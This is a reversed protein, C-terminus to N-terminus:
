FGVRVGLSLGWPQEYTRGKIYDVDAYLHTASSVQAALGAGIEGRSGSLGNDFRNDNVSVRNRKAFERAVAVKIFPEVTGGDDLTFTRGVTTGVKGLLSDAGNSQARMGNNLDYHQGEVWLASGQIFPTVSLGEGLDIRRGGELTAGLGHNNYDGKAQTGDSMRVTSKNQFRNAKFLADAYYGDDGLWTGYVGAYFSDVSGTTGAQVDLDSKSYGAMVGFLGNGNALTLPADAGFTIGRQQQSYGVGAASSVDQRSGYARSWVGGTAQGLRLEGMRSRLTATEGYWVTPAASFLALVSRTGPTVVEGPRQVLFWDNDVQKLDYVFTGLDVQGGLASFQADGGGTQVVKLPDQGAAVDTGTNQIALQHNGSAEGSILLRDGEGAALDTGLGFTGSGALTELTLQHFNGHSGGLDVRGNDMALHRMDSDGTMAWHAGGKVALQSVGSMAGTLSAGDALTVSVQAGPKAQVDGVLDSRLVTFDVATNSDAEVIVGNGGTLTSGNQVVISAETVRQASISTVRIASGQEGSAHANDLVLTSPVSPDTIRTDQVILVGHHQGTLQTGHTATANGNVMVLAHGAGFLTDGGDYHGRVATNDLVVEASNAVNVGRGIGEIVSGTVYASSALNVNLGMSGTSTIHSNAISARSDALYIGNLDGGNVTAGDFALHGGVSYVEHTEGGPTVVLQGGNRVRWGELPDGAQVWKVVGEGDADGARVDEPLPWLFM